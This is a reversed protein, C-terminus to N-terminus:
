ENDLYIDIDWSQEFETYQLLRYIFRIVSIAGYVEAQFSSPTGFAPDACEILAEGQHTLKCDFSM